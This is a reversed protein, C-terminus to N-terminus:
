DPLHSTPEAAVLVASDASDEVWDVAAEELVAAVVVLGAAESGASGAEAAEAAKAGEGAKVESGVAGSVAM